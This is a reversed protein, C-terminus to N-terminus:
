AILVTEVIEFDKISVSGRHSCYESIITEARGYSNAAGIIEGNPHIIVFIKQM